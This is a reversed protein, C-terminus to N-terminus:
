VHIGDNRDSSVPLKWYLLTHLSLRKSVDVNEVNRGAAIVNQWAM